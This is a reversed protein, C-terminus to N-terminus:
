ERALANLYIELNTYGMGALVRHRAVAGAKRALDTFVLQTVDQALHADGNVQRLAASHVLAVHRRVLEAFPAEARTEAYTQLLQADDEMATNLRECGGGSFGCLINGDSSVHM